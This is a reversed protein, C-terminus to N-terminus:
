RYYVKCNRFWFGQMDVFPYDDRQGLYEEHKAYLKNRKLLDIWLFGVQGMNENSIKFNCGM